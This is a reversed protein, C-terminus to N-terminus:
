KKKGFWKKGLGVMESIGLTAGALAGRGVNSWFGPENELEEQQTQIKRNLAEQEDRQKNTMNEVSQQHKTEMEKMRREIDAKEQRKEETQKTQMDIKLKEIKERELQMNKLFKAQEEAAIRQDEERQKKLNEQADKWEQEKTEFIALILQREKEKEAIAMKLKKFETEVEQVKSTTLGPSKSLSKWLIEMANDFAKKEAPDADEDKDYCADMFLYQLGKGNPFENEVVKLYEKALEEDSQKNIKNRKKVSKVDMPIRTFVIVAQKWFEKGFMGEFIRIMGMLAGDLRPNQGNVAIMFLNVYDCNNKLQHVLEGIIDADKDKKPDDFGITDILSIPRGVNANFNVWGFQTSQTCSVAKASVPFIDSDMSHGTIVNCLSSKGTGTKGIILLKMRGDDKVNNTLVVGDPTEKDRAHIYGAMTSTLFVIGM